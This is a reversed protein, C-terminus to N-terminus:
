EFPQRQLVLKILLFHEESCAARLWVDKRYTQHRRWVFKCTVDVDWACPITRAWDSGCQSQDMFRKQIPNMFYHGQAMCECLM